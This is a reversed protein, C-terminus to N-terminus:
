NCAGEGVATTIESAEFSVYCNKDNANCDRACYRLLKYVTEIAITQMTWGM